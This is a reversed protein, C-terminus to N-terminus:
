NRDTDDNQSSCAFFVIISIILMVIGTSTLVAGSIIIKYSNARSWFGLFMQPTIVFNNPLVKLDDFTVLLSFDLETIKATGIKIDEYFDNLDLFAGIKRNCNPEIDNEKTILTSYPCKVRFTGHRRLDDPLDNPHLNFSTSSTGGIELNKSHKFNLFPIENKMMSIQLNLGWLNHIIHAQINQNLHKSPFDSLNINFSLSLNSKISKEQTKTDNHNGFPTWHTLFDGPFEPFLPISYLYKSIYYDPQTCGVIWLPIGAVILIGSFTILVCSVIFERSM